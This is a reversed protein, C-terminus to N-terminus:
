IGDPDFRQVIQGLGAILEDVMRGAEKVGASSSALDEEWKRYQQQTADIDAKLRASEEAIVKMDALEQDSVAAAAGPAPSVAQGSVQNAALVLAALAVGGLLSVTTTFRKHMTMGKM